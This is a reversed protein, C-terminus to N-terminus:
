DRSQHVIKMSIILDNPNQKDDEKWKYSGQEIEQNSPIPPDVTLSFFEGEM